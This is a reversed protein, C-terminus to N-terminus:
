ENCWNESLHLSMIPVHNFFFLEGSKGPLAVGSIPHHEQNRSYGYLVTFLDDESFCYTRIKEPSLNTDRLRFVSEKPPTASPASSRESSPSSFDSLPGTAHEDHRSYITHGPLMRYPISSVNFIQEHLVTAQHGGHGIFPSTGGAFNFPMVAQTDTVLRGLSKLPHLLNHTGAFLDMYHTGTMHAHYYATGHSPSSKLPSPHISKDKVVPLSSVSVSM